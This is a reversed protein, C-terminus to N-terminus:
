YPDDQFHIQRLVLIMQTRIIYLLYDTQLLVIQLVFRAQLKVSYQPLLKMYWDIYLQVSIM